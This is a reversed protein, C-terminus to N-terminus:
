VVFYNNNINKFSCLLITYYLLILVGFWGSQKERKAKSCTITPSKVIEPTSSDKTRPKGKSLSDTSHDTINKKKKTDQPFKESDKKPSIESNVKQSKCMNKMKQLRESNDLDNKNIPDKQDIKKTEKKKEEILMKSEVEKETQKKKQKVKKQDLVKSEEDSLDSDSDSLDYFRKLDETTSHTIPRGRKDVAYNLKFKKDHFMARFRKDIKVKRDKEPMEWFRPDKSVRRFRQDSMIEQKSSM